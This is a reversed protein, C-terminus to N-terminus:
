VYNRKYVSNLNKLDSLSLKGEEGRINENWDKLEGRKRLIIDENKQKLGEKLRMAMAFRARKKDYFVNM